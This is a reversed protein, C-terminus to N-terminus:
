KSTMEFDSRCRCTQFLRPTISEGLIRASGSTRQTETTAKLRAFAEEGDISTVRGSKLDDCRGNLMERTQALEVAYGAMADALLEEPTLRTEIALEELKAQLDAAFHVEM